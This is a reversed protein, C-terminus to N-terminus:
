SIMRQSQPNDYNAALLVVTRFEQISDDYKQDMAYLEGLQGHILIKYRQIESRDLLSEEGEDIKKL